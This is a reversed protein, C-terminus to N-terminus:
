GAAIADALYRAFGPAIADLNETFRHDAVYMAGLQRHMARSCPYFWRDIHGRAEDVLAQAEPAGPAVGAKMLAALRSYIAQSESKIQAWEAPGYGKTRRASERYADTDGWRERAEDDHEAPDFGDFLQKLEDPSMPAAPATPDTPTTM